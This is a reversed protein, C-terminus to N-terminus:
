PTSRASGNNVIRINDTYTVGWGGMVMTYDEWTSYNSDDSFDLIPFPRSPYFGNQGADRFYNLVGEKLIPNNYASTDSVEKISQPAEALIAKPNLYQFDFLWDGSTDQYEFTHLSTPESMHKSSIYRDNIPNINSIWSSNTLGQGYFPDQMKVQLLGDAVADDIVYNLDAIVEPLVNRDIGKYKRNVDTELIRDDYILEGAGVDM